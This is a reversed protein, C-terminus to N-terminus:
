RVGLSQGLGLQELLNTNLNIKVENLYPYSGPINPAKLVEQCSTHASSGRATAVSAIAMKCLHWDVSVEFRCEPMGCQRKSIAGQPAARAAYVVAAFILILLTTLIYKLFSVWQFVSRFSESCLVPCYVRNLADRPIITYPPLPNCVTVQHSPEPYYALLHRDSQGAQCPIAYKYLRV